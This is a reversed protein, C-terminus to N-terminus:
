FLQLEKSAKLGFNLIPKNQKIKIAEKLLLINWNKHGDIVHTNNQVLNIQSSKIDVPEDHINDNVLLIKISISEMYIGIRHM